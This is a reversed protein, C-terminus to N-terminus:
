APHGTDRAGIMSSPSVKVNIGPRTEDFDPDYVTEPGTASDPEDGVDCSLFMFGMLLAAFLAPVLLFLKKGKSQNEMTMM